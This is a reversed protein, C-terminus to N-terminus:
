RILFGAFRTHRSNGGYIYQSRVSHISITDGKILNTIISGYIKEHADSGTNGYIGGERNGNKYFRLNGDSVKDQTLGDFYIFYTGNVPATFQNTSTSYGNGKNIKINEFTIIERDVSDQHATKIAMFAVQNDFDVKGEFNYNGKFNGSLIEDAVHWGASYSIGFLMLFTFSIWILSKEIKNITNM